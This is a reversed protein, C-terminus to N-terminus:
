IGTEQNHLGYDLQEISQVSSSIEGTGKDYSYWIETMTKSAGNSTTLVSVQMIPPGDESTSIM